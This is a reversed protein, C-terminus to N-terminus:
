PKQSTDTAKPINVTGPTKSTAAAVKYHLYGNAAIGALNIVVAIVLLGTFLTVHPLRFKHQKKHPAPEQLLAEEAAAHVAETDAGSEPRHEATNHTEEPNSM